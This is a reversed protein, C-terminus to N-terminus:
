PQSPTEAAAQRFCCVLEKCYGSSFIASCWTITPIEAASQLLLRDMELVMTQCIKPITNDFGGDATFFYRRRRVASCGVAASM